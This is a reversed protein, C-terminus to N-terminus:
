SAAAAGLAQELKEALALLYVAEHSAVVWADWTGGHNPKEISVYGNFGDAVLASLIAEYDLAGDGLPVREGDVLSTYNHAHVHVTHAGLRRLSEEVPEAGRGLPLHLNVGLNPRDVGHLLRLASASDEMLTGNHCELAFCIDAGAGMDCIRQIGTIAAEWQAPTAERPGVAASSEPSCTLVRILPKGLEQACNVYEEAKQLSADWAVQGHVFDFGPCLQACELGSNTLATAWKRASFAKFTADDLEVGDYGLARLRAFHPEPDSTDWSYCFGLRFM